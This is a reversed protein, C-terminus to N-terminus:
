KSERAIEPQHPRRNEAPHVGALNREILDLKGDWTERAMAQSRECRTGPGTALASEVADAFADPTDAAHILPGFLGLEPLPTSVVPLGAALYERLKTPIGARTVENIKFPVLGVDFQRCYAPLDEYKKRGLFHMNPLSRYPTLDITSDGLLVFHWEPRLRAVAALLDLDM